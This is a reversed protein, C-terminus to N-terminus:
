RSTRPRRPASATIEIFIFPSSKLVSPKVTSSDACTEWAVPSRQADVHYLDAASAYAALVLVTLPRPVGVGRELSGLKPPGSRSSVPCRRLRLGEGEDVAESCPCGHLGDDVPPYGVQDAHAAGEDPLGVEDVVQLAPCSSADQM